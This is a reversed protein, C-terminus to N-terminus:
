FFQVSCFLSALYHICALKGFNLSLHIVLFNILTLGLSNVLLLSIIIFLMLMSTTLKEDNDILRLNFNENLLVQILKLLLHGSKDTKEFVMLFVNRKWFIKKWNLTESELFPILSKLCLQALVSSFRAAAPTRIFEGCRKCASIGNRSVALVSLLTDAIYHFGLRMFALHSATSGEIFKLTFFFLLGVELCVLISQNPVGPSMLKLLLLM